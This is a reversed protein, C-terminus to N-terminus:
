ELRRVACIKKFLHRIDGNVGQVRAGVEMEGVDVGSWIQTVCQAHDKRAQRLDGSQKLVSPFCHLLTGSSYEGRLNMQSSYVLALANKEFINVM